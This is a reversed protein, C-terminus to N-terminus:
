RQQQRFASPTMGTTRSFVQSFYNPDPYGVAACIQSIPQDTQRLLACAKEIRLRRLYSSISCHYTQSFLHQLTSRSCRCLQALQNLRLPESFGTHLADRLKDLLLQQQLSQRDQQNQYIIHERALLSLVAAAMQLQVLLAAPPPDAKLYNLYAARVAAPDLQYRCCIRGIRRDAKAPECRYSGASIYGWLGKNDTFPFLFERVGCHCTGSIYAETTQLKHALYKKDAVCTKWLEPQQKLLMCYPNSHVSYLALLASLAEQDSGSVGGIHIDIQYTEQLLKLYQGLGAILKDQM